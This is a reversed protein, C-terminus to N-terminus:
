KKNMRKDQKIKKEAYMRTDIQEQFERRSLRLEPEYLCAGMSLQVPIMDDCRRCRYRLVANRIRELVKDLEEQTAVDLIVCFEDGGYRALFDENRICRRLIAVTNQLAKDGALHGHRDNILKFDDIDIMIAAFTSEKSAAMIKEDIYNDLRRRTCAGTLFDTDMLRQQLNLYIMLLAYVISCPILNLGQVRMQVLSCFSPILPFLFLSNFYQKEIQKRYTILMAEIIVINALGLFSAVYYYPGRQYTGDVFRFFWGTSLSALIGAIDLIVVVILVQQWWGPTKGSSFIQQSLYRLWFYALVPYTLFLIVIGQVLVGDIYGQNNLKTTMEAVLNVASIALMMYFVRQQSSRYDFNYRSSLFILVLILASFFDLSLLGAVQMTM